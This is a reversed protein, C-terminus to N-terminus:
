LDEKTARIEVLHITSLDKSESKEFSFENETDIKKVLSVRNHVHFGTRIHFKLAHENDSRVNGLIYEFDKVEVIWRLFNRAINLAFNKMNPKVGVIYYDYEIYNGRNIAGIHGVFENELSSIKFLLRDNSPLVITELWNKTRENTPIFESLFCSKYKNRWETIKSIIQHDNLDDEEILKLRAIEEGKENHVPLELSTLKSIVLEKFTM